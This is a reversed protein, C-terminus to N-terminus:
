FKGSSNNDASEQIRGISYYILLERVSIIYIYKKENGQFFTSLAYSQLILPHSNVM